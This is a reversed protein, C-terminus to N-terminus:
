QDRAKDGRRPTKRRCVHDTDEATLATSWTLFIQSRIDHPQGMIVMFFSVSRHLDRRICFYYIMFSFLFITRIIHAYVQSKYMYVHTYVYINKIPLM